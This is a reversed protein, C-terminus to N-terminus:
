KTSLFRRVKHMSLMDNKTIREIKEAYDCISLYFAQAKKVDLSEKNQLTFISLSNDLCYLVNRMENSQWIADKKAMNIEEKLPLLIKDDKEWLRKAMANKGIDKINNVLHEISQYAQIRKEIIIKYYDKKYSINNIILTTILTLGSGALAGLITIILKNM